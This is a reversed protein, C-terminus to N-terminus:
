TGASRERGGSHALPPSATGRQPTSWLTIAAMIALPVVAPVFNRAELLTSLFLNSLWLAAALFCALRRLPLPQSRWHWVALLFLFGITHWTQRTWYSVDRLNAIFNLPQLKSISRYEVVEAISLRIAVALM